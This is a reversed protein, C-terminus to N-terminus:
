GSGIPRRCPTTSRSARKPCSSTSPRSCGRCRDARCRRRGRWCSPWKRWTRSRASPNGLVVSLPNNIEHAVGAALTGVSAMRESILLQQRIKRQEVRAAAERVEREIAVVLRQLNGKLIFDRVGSRMAEAAVEEGVTGSVMIFPVDLGTDHVIAFAAPGSFGPLSHDSIVIDWTRTRLEAALDEATEVRVADLKYGGRRLERFVLEADDESDEVLLVRLPTRTGDTM